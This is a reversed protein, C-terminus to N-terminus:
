INANLLKRIHPSLWKYVELHGEAAYHPADDVGLAMFKNDLADAVSGIWNSPVTISHESDSGPHHYGNGWDFMLVNDKGYVANVLDIEKQLNWRQQHSNLYWSFFQKITKVSLLTSEAFMALRRHKNTGVINDLLSPTVCVSKNSKFSDDFYTYNTFRGDVADTKFDSFPFRPTHSDDMVINARGLHTWQIIVKDPSGVNEECQRLRLYASDNAGGPESLDYVHCDPFHKAILAPYSENHCDGDYWHSYSCGVIFIKKM